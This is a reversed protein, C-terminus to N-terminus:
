ARRAHLLPAPAVCVQNRGGNKAGYLAMDARQILDLLAERPQRVAVGISVTVVRDAMPEAFRLAAIRARLREAFLTIHAVAEGVAFVAFEEGGLRVPIDSSRVSEILTAAVQRLVVDGQNHGYTDNISKFHDIDIMLM